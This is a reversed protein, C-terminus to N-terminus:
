RYAIWEPTNRAGNKLTSISKLLETIIDDSLRNNKTQEKTENFSALHGELLRHKMIGGVIEDAKVEDSRAHALITSVADNVAAFAFM